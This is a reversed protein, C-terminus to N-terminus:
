TAFISFLWWIYLTAAFSWKRVASLLHNELKPTQHAALLSEDHLFLPSINFLTEATCLNKLIVWSVYFSCSILYKNKTEQQQLKIYLKPKRFYAM